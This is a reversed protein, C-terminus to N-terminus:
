HKYYNYQILTDIYSKYFHKFKSNINVSSIKNKPYKLTDEDNIVAEHIEYASGTCNVKEFYSMCTVSM